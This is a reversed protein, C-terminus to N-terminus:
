HREGNFTLFMKDIHWSCPSSRMGEARLIRSKKKDFYTASSVGAKRCVKAAPTAYESKKIIFTKQAYM